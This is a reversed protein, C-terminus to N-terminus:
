AAPKELLAFWAYNFVGEDAVVFGARRALERWDSRSTAVLSLVNGIAFAAWGPVWVAM